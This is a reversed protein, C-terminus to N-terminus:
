LFPPFPPFPPPLFSFSFSSLSSFLPFSSPLHNYIVFMRSRWLCCGPRGLQLWAEGAGERGRAMALKAQRHCCSVASLQHHRGRGVGGARTGRHPCSRLRGEQSQQPHVRIMTLQNNCDEDTQRWQLTCGRIRGKGGGQSGDHEGLTASTSWLRRAQRRGGSRM